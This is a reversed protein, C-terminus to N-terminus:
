ANVCFPHTGSCLLGYKSSLKLPIQGRKFLIRSVVAANLDFILESTKGKLKADM